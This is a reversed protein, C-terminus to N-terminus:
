DGGGLDHAVYAPEEAFAVDQYRVSGDDEIVAEGRGTIREMEKVGGIGQRASALFRLQVRCDYEGLKVRQIQFEDIVCGHLTDGARPLAPEVCAVLEQLSDTVSQRVEYDLERPPLNKLFDIHNERIM